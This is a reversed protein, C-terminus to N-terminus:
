RAIIKPTQRAPTFMFRLDEIMTATERPSPRPTVNTGSMSRARGSNGRLVNADPIAVPPMHASTSLAIRGPSLDYADWILVARNLPTDIAAEPRQVTPILADHTRDRETTQRSRTRTSQHPM